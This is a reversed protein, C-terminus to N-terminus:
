SVSKTGQAACPVSLPPPEIKCFLVEGKPVGLLFAPPTEVEGGAGGLSWFPPAKGRRKPNDVGHCKRYANRRSPIIGNRYHGGLRCQQARRRYGGYKGCPYPRDEDTLGFLYDTSVHYFRALRIITASPIDLAGSEYRSYTTQSINLMSAIDKQTKDHDERLDRLRQYMMRVECHNSSICYVCISM